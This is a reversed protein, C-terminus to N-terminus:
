RLEEKAVRTNHPPRTKQLPRRAAIRVQAVVIFLKRVQHQAAACPGGVDQGRDRWAGAARAITRLGQASRVLFRGQCGFRAVETTREASAARSTCDSVQGRRTRWGIRRVPWTMRSRHEGGPVGGDGRPRTTGLRALVVLPPPIRHSPTRSRRTTGLDCPFRTYLSARLLKQPLRHGWGSGGPLRRTERGHAPENYKYMSTAVSAPAAAPTTQVASVSSLGATPWM